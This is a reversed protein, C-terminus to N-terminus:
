PRAAVTVSPANSSVDAIKLVVPWTGAPLDPVRVNLQVLGTGLAPAAGAFLIEAPMDGVTVSCPLTLRYLRDIPTAEGARLPADHPGGGTAYFVIFSGPAAGHDAANLRGDENIALLSGPSAEFLGPSAVQVQVSVKSSSVGDATVTL